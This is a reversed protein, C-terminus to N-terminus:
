PAFKRCIYTSATNREAQQKRMIKQSHDKAFVTDARPGKDAPTSKRIM